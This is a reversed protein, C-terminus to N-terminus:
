GKLDSSLAGTSPQNAKSQDIVGRSAQAFILYTLFVLTLSSFLYAM